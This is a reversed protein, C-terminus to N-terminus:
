FSVGSHELEDFLVDGSLDINHPTIIFTKTAIMKINGNKAYNVGNIFLLIRLYDDASAKEMNIIVACNSLIADAIAKADDAYTHPKFVVVQLQSSAHNSFNVVNNSPAAPATNNRRFLSSGSSVPAPARYEHVPENVEEEEAEEYENEYDLEDEYDDEPPNWLKSIKDVLGAM